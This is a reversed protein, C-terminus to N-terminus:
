ICFAEYHGPMLIKIKCDGGLQAAFEAPDASFDPFMDWHMPLVAAPSIRKTFRAADVANMNNGKGNIVTILLDIPEDISGFIARSYLTDGTHYVRKGDASIIVGIADFDSHAAPVSRYLVDDLSIETGPVFIYFDARGAYRQRMPSLASKPLLMKIKKDGGAQVLADITDFDMHDIHDHTLILVDPAKLFSEDVPVLRRCGSGSSREASDSMYPDVMISSGGATEFLFGAQGLWYGKM